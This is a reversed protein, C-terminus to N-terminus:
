DDNKLLYKNNLVKFSIENGRTPTINRVVMGEAPKQNQNYKLKTSIEVAEDVTWTFQGLELKPQPMLAKGYPLKATQNTLSQRDKNYLALTEKIKDLQKKDSVILNIDALELHNETAFSIMELLSKREHHQVFNFMAFRLEQVGVHNLQIGPGYLEGQIAFDDPYAQLKEWTDSKQFLKHATSGAKLTNNRTAINLQGNDKTITLSTGDYKLATYFTQGYLKEFNSNGSQMRLEDTQSVIHTPFGGSLTGLSGEVEPRDFKEVQLTETVDTGVPLDAFNENFDSLGLILGQSIQNRLKITHVRYGKVRGGTIEAIPNNRVDGIFAYKDEVPLFSDIEFFVVKDGVKFENKAVVVDWGMVRATVIKDAKPIPTIDAITQISALKRKAKKPDLGQNLTQNVNEVAEKFAPDKQSESKIYDSTKTM